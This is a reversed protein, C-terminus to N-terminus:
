LNGMQGPRVDWQCRQRVTLRGIICPKFSTTVAPIAAVVTCSSEQLKNCFITLFPHNPITGRSTSLQYRYEVRIGIFDIPLVRTTTQHV